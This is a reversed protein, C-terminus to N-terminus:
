VHEQKATQKHIWDMLQAKLQQDDIDNIFDAITESPDTAEDYGEKAPDLWRRLDLLLKVTTNFSGLARSDMPSTKWFNEILNCLLSDVGKTTTLDTGKPWTLPKRYPRGSNKRVGGHKSKIKRGRVACM